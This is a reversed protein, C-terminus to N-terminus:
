DLSSGFLLLYLDSYTGLPINKNKMNMVMELLFPKLDYVTITIVVYIYGKCMLYYFKRRNKKNLMATPICPCNM